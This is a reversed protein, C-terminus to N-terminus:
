EHHLNRTWYHKRGPKAYDALSAQLRLAAVMSEAGKPREQVTRDKSALVTLMQLPQVMLQRRAIAIM